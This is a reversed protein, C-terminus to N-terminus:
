EVIDCTEKLSV